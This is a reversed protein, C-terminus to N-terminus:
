EKLQDEGFEQELLTLAGEVLQPPVSKEAAAKRLLALCPDLGAENAAKYAALAEAETPQTVAVAAYCNLVTTLHHAVGPHKQQSSIVM